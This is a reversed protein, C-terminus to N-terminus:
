AFFHVLVGVLLTTAAALACGLEVLMGLGVSKLAEWSTSLAQRLNRVRAWEMALLGGVFGIALGLFPIVFLGVVGCILGVVVSRNPIQRQRLRRGTILYQASAGAALFAAGIGFVIWGGPAPSFIAWVLLGALATLSGPLVPLIIGCVGVATLVIAIAAAVEVPM